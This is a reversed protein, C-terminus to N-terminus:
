NSMADYMAQSEFRDHVHYIHKCRSDSCYALAGGSMPGVMGEPQLMPKLAYYEPGRQEEFFILDLQGREEIEAYTNPGTACPIYIEKATASAGGNSFNGLSSNYISISLFRDTSKFEKVKKM